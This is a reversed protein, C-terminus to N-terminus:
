EGGYSQTIVALFMPFCGMLVELGFGIGLNSNGLKKFAILRRMSGTFTRQSLSNM